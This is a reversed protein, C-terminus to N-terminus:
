RIKRPVVGLVTGCCVLIEAWDIYVNKGFHTGCFKKYKYSISLTINESERYRLVHSFENRIGM